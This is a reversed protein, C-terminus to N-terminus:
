NCTETAVNGWTPYEGSVQFAGVSPSGGPTWTGNTQTASGNFGWNTYGLSIPITCQWGGTCANAAPPTWLLYMTANFTRSASVYTSPLPAEPADTAQGSGNIGPYPYATDLGTGLTYSCTSSRTVNYTSILQEYFFNGADLPPPTASGIFQIGLTDPYDGFGLYSGDPYVLVGTTSTDVSVSTPGSVNFSAQDHAQQGTDPVKSDVEEQLVNQVSLGRKTAETEVLKQDILGELAHETIEYEQNRLQSLQTVYRAPLEQQYVPQGAVAALPEGRSSSQRSNAGSAAASLMLMPVLAVSARITRIADPM